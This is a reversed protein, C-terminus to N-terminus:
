KLLYRTLSNGTTFRSKLPTAIVLSPQLNSM